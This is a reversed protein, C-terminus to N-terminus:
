MYELSVVPRMHLKIDSGVYSKACDSYVGRSKVYTSDAGPLRDKYAVTTTSHCTSCSAKSSTSFAPSYPQDLCFTTSTVATDLSQDVCDVLPVSCPYINPPSQFSFFSPSTSRSVGLPIASSPSTSPSLFMDKGDISYENQIATWVSRCKRDKHKSNDFLLESCTNNNENSDVATLREELGTSTICNDTFQAFGATIEYSSDGQVGGNNMPPVRTTSVLTDEYQCETEERSKAPSSHRKLSPRYRQNHFFEVLIDNDVLVEDPQKETTSSNNNNIHKWHTAVHRRILVLSRVQKYCVVCTYRKSDLFDLEARVFNSMKSVKTLKARVNKWKTEQPLSLSLAEVLDGERPCRKSEVLATVDRHVTLIHDEVENYDQSTQSCKPCIHLRSIVHTSRIHQKIDNKEVCCWTCLMCGWKVASTHDAVEDHDQLEASQFENTIQSPLSVSPTSPVESFTDENRSLNDCGQHDPNVNHLLNEDSCTAIEDSSIKSILGDANVRLFGNCLEDIVNKRSLIVCCKGTVTSCTISGDNSKAPIFNSSGDDALATYVDNSSNSFEEEFEMMSLLKGVTVEHQGKKDDVITIHTGIDVPNNFYTKIDPCIANEIEMHKSIVTQRKVDEVCPKTDVKIKAMPTNMDMECVPSDYCVSKSLEPMKDNVDHQTDIISNVQLGTLTGCTGHTFEKIVELDPLSDDDYADSMVDCITAQEAQKRGHMNKRRKSHRERHPIFVPKRKRQMKVAKKKLNAHLMRPRIDLKTESDGVEIFMQSPPRRKVLTLQSRELTTNQTSNYHKTDVDKEKPKETEYYEDKETSGPTAYQLLFHKVRDTSDFASLSKFDQFTAPFKPISLTVKEDNGVYKPSLETDSMCRDPTEEYSKTSAYDNDTLEEADPANCIAQFSDAQPNSSKGTSSATSTQRNRTKVLFAYNSPLSLSDKTSFGPIEADAKTNECKMNEISIEPTSSTNKLPPETMEIVNPLEDRVAENAENTKTSGSELHEVSVTNAHLADNITVVHNTQTENLEIINPLGVHLVENSQIIESKLHLTPSISVHSAESITVVPNTQIEKLKFCNPPLDHIVEDGTSDISNHSANSITVASNTQIEKIEIVNPLVNNFVKTPIIESKLHKTSSISDHSAATIRCPPKTQSESMKIVDSLEDHIVKDTKTRRSKLHEASSVIDHSSVTAKTQVPIIGTLHPATTTQTSLQCPSMTSSCANKAITDLCNNADSTGKTSTELAGSVLTMISVSSMLSCRTNKVLPTMIPSPTTIGSPSIMTDSSSDESQKSIVTPEVLTSATTPAIIPQRAPSVLTNMVPIENMTSTITTPTPSTATPYVSSTHNNTKYQTLYTDPMCMPASQPVANSALVTPATTMIPTSATSIYTSTTNSFTIADPIAITVPTMITHAARKNSLRLQDVQTDMTHIDTTTHTAAAATTSNSLDPKYNDPTATATMNTTTTMMTVATTATSASLITTIERDIIASRKTPNDPLTGRTLMASANITNDRVIKHEQMLSHFLKEPLLNFPLMKSHDLLVHGIFAEKNQFVLFCEKCKFTTVLDWHKERIHKKWESNYKVIHKCLNCVIIANSPKRGKRLRIKDVGDCQTSHVSPGRKQNPQYIEADYESLTSDKTSTSVPRVVQNMTNSLVALLSDDSISINVAGTGTEINTSINTTTSICDVGVSHGNCLGKPDNYSQLPVNKTLALSHNLVTSEHGSLPPVPTLLARPQNSEVIRPGTPLSIDYGNHPPTNLLVHSNKFRTFEHGTNVASSLSVKNDPYLPLTKLLARPNNSESGSSILNTNGLHQSPTKLLAPPQLCNTFAPYSSIPHDNGVHLLTKNHLTCQHNLGVLEPVSVVPSITAAHGPNRPPTEQYAHPHKLDIVERGTPISVCPSVVNGHLPQTTLLALQSPSVNHYSATNSRIRPRYEKLSSLIPSTYPVSTRTMTSHQKPHMNKHFDKAVYQNNSPSRMSANPVNCRQDTSMHYHSAAIPVPQQASSSLHINVPSVSCISGLSASPSLYSTAQMSDNSPQFGSGVPQGHQALSVHNLTSNPHGLSYPFAHQLQNINRQAVSSIYTESQITAGVASVFKPQGHGVYTDQQQKSQQQRQYKHQQQKRPVLPVNPAVVSPHTRTADFPCTVIPLTMVNPLKMAHIPLLSPVERVLGQQAALHAQYRNQKMFFALTQTQDHRTVDLPTDALALSSVKHLKTHRKKRRPEDITHQHGNHEQVGFMHNHQAPYMDHPLWNPPMGMSMGMQLPSPVLQAQSTMPYTNTSGNLTQSLHQSNAHSHKAMSVLSNDVQNVDVTNQDDSSESALRMCEESAVSSLIDLATPQCRNTVVTATSTTNTPTRQTPVYVDKTVTNGAEVQDNGFSTIGNRIHDLNNPLTVIDPLNSESADSNLSLPTASARGFSVPSSLISCYEIDRQLFDDPYIHSPSSTVVNSSNASDVSARSSRPELYTGHSPNGCPSQNHLLNKVIPFNNASNNASIRNANDCVILGSPTLDNECPVNGNTVDDAPLKFQVFDQADYETPSDPPLLFATDNETWLPSIQDTLPVENGLYLLDADLANGNYDLLSPVPTVETVHTTKDNPDVSLIYNTESRDSTPPFPMLRDM